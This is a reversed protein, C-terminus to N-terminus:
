ERWRAHSGRDTKTIYLQCDIQEKLENVHSIIGVLAKEGALEQLIRIARERAMDDLSGFGEDVFMTELSIAGASNQVIDALGLAMALAALFSEGGSLTKVDRVSDNVLHYVDLDLGAQGQSSLNEMERCQLIFENDTMKALRRNAAGIIQRFYKRQVYTEFDLKISGSLQGNATRSLNNMMEYQKQLDAAASGYERLNKLAAKNKQYVLHLRLHREKQGKLKATELELQAKSEQLDVPKKGELQSQLSEVRATQRLVKEEYIQVKKQLQERVSLWQRATEYESSRDLFGQRELEQVFLKEAQEQQKILMELRNQQNELQGSKREREEAFKRSRQELKEEEDRLTQLTRELEKMQRKVQQGDIVEVRNNEGNIQQLLKEEAELQGKLTQFVEAAQARRNEATDRYQKAQEVDKQNPADKRTQAKQPHHVSGCVPCPKGEELQGALIGAQEEFFRQYWEEYIQSCERCKKMAQELKEQATRCSEKLTQIRQLHPLIDALRQLRMQLVPEQQKREKAKEQWQEQLRKGQPLYMKLWQETKQVDTRQQESEHRIRVWEKEFPLVKEARAACALQGKCSEIEGKQRELEQQEEVYKRLLIFLRNVEEQAQIRLNLTDIQKQLRACQKESEMEMSKDRSVIQSLLECTEQMLPMELDCLRQWNKRYEDAGSVATHESVEAQDPMGVSDSVEVQDMERKCDRRNQELSIYLQKARNALEEQMQWYLKTQFIQSFIKRREKSEAHLLKLFDGQAIMAIQTFQNVDLGIIEEIKKDIERKKGQFEKGDPLLLSVKATEKVFKLTGDKNKRKGARLYEPNRRVVYCEGRYSFELEVFTDIDEAAYQSRMMNGDRKGGSTHDYLAYTIADFITTKGAGTDGTILFLGSNIKTFDIVECGAYSGFASMTLKCPRM